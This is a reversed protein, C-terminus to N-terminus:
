KCHVVPDPYAGAALTIPTSGRISNWGIPQSEVTKDDTESVVADIGTGAVEIMNLWISVSAACYPEYVNAGGTEHWEIWVEKFNTLTPEPLMDTTFALAQQGEGVGPDILVVHGTGSMPVDCGTWSNGRGDDCVATPDFKKLEARVYAGSTKAGSSLGYHFTSATGFAMGLDAGGDFSSDTDFSYTSGAIMPNAKNLVSDWPVPNLAGKEPTHEMYFWSRQGGNDRRDIKDIFKAMAGLWSDRVDVVTTAAVASLNVTGVYDYTPMASADGTGAVLDTPATACVSNAPVTRAAGSGGCLATTWPGTSFLTDVDPSVIGFRAAAMSEQWTYVPCTAVDTATTDTCNAPVSANYYEGSVGYKAMIYFKFSGGMEASRATDVVGNLSVSGTASASVLMIPLKNGLLDTAVGGDVKDIMISMDQVYAYVDVDQKGDGDADVPGLENFKPESWSDENHLPFATGFTVNNPISPSWKLAGDEMRGEYIFNDENNVVRYNAWGNIRDNGNGSNPDFAEWIAAWPEAGSTIATYNFYGAATRDNVTDDGAGATPPTTTKDTDSDLLGDNGYNIDWATIDNYYSISADKVADVAAGFPGTVNVSRRLNMSRDDNQLWFGEGGNYEYSSDNGGDGGGMAEKAMMWTNASGMYPMISVKELTVLNTAQVNTMEETSILGDGDADLASDTITVTGDVDAESVAKGTSDIIIKGLQTDGSLGVEAAGATPDAASVLSGVVSLNADLFVVAYKTGVNLGGVEFNGGSDAKTSQTNGTADAILVLANALPSSQQTDFVAETVARSTAKSYPKHTATPSVSKQVVGSLSATQGVPDTSDSSCAALGLIASSLLSIKFLRLSQKRM